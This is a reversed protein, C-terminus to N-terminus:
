THQHTPARSLKGIVRILASNEDKLRQNENKLDQLNQTRLLLCNDCYLVHASYSLVVFVTRCEVAHVVFHYWSYLLTM